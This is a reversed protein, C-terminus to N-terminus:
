VQLKTARAADQVTIATAESGSRLCIMAPVRRATAVAASIAKDTSETQIMVEATNTANGPGIELCSLTHVNIM